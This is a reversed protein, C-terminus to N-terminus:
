KGTQFITPNTKLAAEIAEIRSELKKNM